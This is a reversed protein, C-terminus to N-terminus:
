LMERFSKYKKFDQQNLNSIYFDIVMSLVDYDFQQKKLIKLADLDSKTHKPM